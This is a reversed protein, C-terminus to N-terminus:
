AGSALTKQMWVVDFSRGNKRGIGRFRGYEVFDNRAHFRISGENLSSIGALITSLGRKHAGDLLLGLILAGIGKRTYGPRVFYSIEATGSFAPIPSYPRLMGFGLVAGTDDRAVVSPYGESMKLVGEFFERTVREEPYAAFSHEVYYNFIDVVQDHVDRSIPELRAEM